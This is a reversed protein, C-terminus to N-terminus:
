GIDLVTRGSFDFPVSDLRMKPDRQGALREGLVEITHYGAPYKTASYTKGGSKTYSLLNKLAAMQREESTLGCLSNRTDECNYKEAVSLLSAPRRVVAKAILKKLLVVFLGGIGKSDVLLRAKQLLSTGIMKVISFLSSFYYIKM